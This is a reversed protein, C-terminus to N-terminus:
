FLTKYSYALSGVMPALYESCFRWEAPLFHKCFRPTYGKRDPYVLSKLQASCAYKTALAAAQPSVLARASILFASLGFSWFFSPPAILVHGSQSDSFTAVM